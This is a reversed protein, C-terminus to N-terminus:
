LSGYYDFTSYSYWYYEKIAGLKMPWYGGYNNILRVMESKDGKKFNTFDYDDIIAVSVKYKKMGKSIGVYQVKMTFSNVSGITLLLDKDAYCTANYFNIPECKAYYSNKAKKVYQKIRKRVIRSNKLRDTMNKIISPYDNLNILWNFRAATVSLLYLNISLRYNIVFKRVKNVGSKILKNLIKNITKPNYILSRGSPDTNM